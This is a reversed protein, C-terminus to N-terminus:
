AKMAAIEGKTNVGFAKTPVGLARAIDNVARMTSLGAKEIWFYVHDGTGSPSYAPIEEVQFDEYRRKIAAPLGAIDATLYPWQPIM